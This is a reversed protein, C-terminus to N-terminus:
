IRDVPRVILESIPVRQTAGTDPEFLVIATPTSVVVRGSAVQAEDKFLAVCTATRIPVAKEKRPTSWAQLLANSSRVPECVTPSVVYKRFYYGGLQIGFIPVASIMTVIFILLSAILLPSIFMLGGFLSSGIAGKYILHSNSEHKIPRALYRWFQITILNTQIKRARLIVLCCIITFTCFAISLSAQWTQAFVSSWDIEGIGIVISIMAYASLGIIDLVSSYAADHPMGFTTEVALAVGYGLLTLLLSISSIITIGWTFNNGSKVDNRGEHRTAGHHSNTQITMSRNMHASGTTTMSRQM